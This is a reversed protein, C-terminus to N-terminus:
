PPEASSWMRKLAFVAAATARSVPGPRVPKRIEGLLGKLPM